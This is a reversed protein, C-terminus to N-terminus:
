SRISCSPPAGELVRFCSSIKQKVKPMRIAREALNNTFLVRLDTLCRLVAEAHERLPKILNFNLSQRDRGRRSVQRKRRPNHILAKILIANYNSFIRRIRGASLATAVVQRAVACCNRVRISPDIM